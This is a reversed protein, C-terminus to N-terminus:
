ALTCAHHTLDSSFATVMDHAHRSVMNKRLLKGRPCFFARPPAPWFGLYFPGLTSLQETSVMDRAKGAGAVTVFPSHHAM